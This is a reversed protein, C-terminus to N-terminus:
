RNFIYFQNYEALILYQPNFILFISILLEYIFRMRNSEEMEM